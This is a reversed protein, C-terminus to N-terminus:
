HYLGIMFLAVLVALCGLFFVIARRLRRWEAQLSDSTRVRRSRM